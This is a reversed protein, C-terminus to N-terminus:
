RGVGAGSKVSKKYEKNQEQVLKRNSVTEDMIMQLMPDVSRTSQMALEARKCLDLLQDLDNYRGTIVMSKIPALLGNIVAYILVSNDLKLHRSLRRMENIFSECSQGVKQVTSLVGSADRSSNVEQHM